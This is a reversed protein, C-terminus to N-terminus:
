STERTSISAAEDTDGNAKTAVHTAIFLTLSLQHKSSQTAKLMICPPGFFYAQESNCYRQRSGALTGLKQCM